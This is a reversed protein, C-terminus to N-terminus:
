YKVLLALYLKLILAYMNKLIKMIKDTSIGGFMLNRYFVSLDTYTSAIPYCPLLLSSNSYRSPTLLSSLLISHFSILHLPSPPYENNFHM